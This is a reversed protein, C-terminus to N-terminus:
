FDGDTGEKSGVISIKGSGEGHNQFVFICHVVAILRDLDIEIKDLRLKSLCLQLYHLAIEVQRQIGLQAEVPCHRIDGDFFSPPPCTANVRQLNDLLELM